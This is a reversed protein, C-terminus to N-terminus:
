CSLLIQVKSAMRALLKPTLAYPVNYHCSLGRHCQFPEYYFPGMTSPGWPPVTGNDFTRMTFQGMTPLIMTSPSVNSPGLLGSDQYHPDTTAIGLVLFLSVVGTVSGSEEPVKYWMSDNSVGNKLRKEMCVYLM